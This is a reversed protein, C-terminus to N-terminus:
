YYGLYVNIGSVKRMMWAWQATSPFDTCRDKANGWVRGEWGICDRPGLGRGERVEIM